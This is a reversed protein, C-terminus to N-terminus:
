WDTLDLLFTEVGNSDNVGYHSSKFKWVSISFDYVRAYTEDKDEGLLKYSSFMTDCWYLKSKVSRKYAGDWSTIATASDLGLNWISFDCELVCAVPKNAYWDEEGEALAVSVSLIMILLAMFTAIIKKKKM